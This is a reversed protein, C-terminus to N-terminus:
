ARLSRRIELDDSFNLQKRYMSSHGDKRNRTMKAINLYITPIRLGRIVTELVEMKPVYQTLITGNNNPTTEKNSHDRYNPKGDRFHTASYGRFFILSTNPNVNSDVWKAWTILAKHFSEPVNLEAYVHNREQIILQFSDDVILCSGPEDMPYYEDEVWEGKFFDWRILSEVPVHLSNDDPSQTQMLPEEAPLVAERRKDVIFNKASYAM